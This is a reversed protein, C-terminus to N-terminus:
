NKVINKEEYGSAISAITAIICYIKTLCELDCKQDYKNHYGMIEHFCLKSFKMGSSNLNSRDDKEDNLRFFGGIVENGMLYIVPEAIYSRFRDITPIGEQILYSHIKVSGKGVSLKNKQKRNMNKIEEASEFKEVAIGYTGSSNKIFVYPHENIKYEDYKKQIKKLLEEAKLAIKENDNKHSIHVEDMEETIPLFIWPDIDILTSFEEILQRYYNFHTIKKRYAWGLLPNPIIPQDINKLINPISKSLDNNLLIIDPIEECAKLINGSHHIKKLVIPDNGATELVTEEDKFEPHITGICVHFGASKLIIELRKLNSLYYLNRTHSEPILLISKTQPYFKELYNKALLSAHHTYSPCLNNFGAPFLNADIAAIKFGANRLDISSYFPGKVQSKKEKLWEAIATKHTKFKEELISLVM